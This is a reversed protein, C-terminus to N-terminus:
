GAYPHAGISRRQQLQGVECCVRNSMLFPLSVEVHEFGDESIQPLRAGPKGRAMGHLNGLLLVDAKAPGTVLFSKKPAVRLQKHDFHDTGIFDSASAAFVAAFPM